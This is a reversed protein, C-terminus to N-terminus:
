IFPPCANPSRGVSDGMLRHGSSTSAHSAVSPTIEFYIRQEEDNESHSPFGEEAVLSNVRNCWQNM